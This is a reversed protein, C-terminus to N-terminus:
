KGKEKAYYKWDKGDYYEIVEVYDKTRLGIVSIEKFGISLLTQSTNM